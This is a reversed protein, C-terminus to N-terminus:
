LLDRMKQASVYLNAPIPLNKLLTAQLRLYGNAARQAHIELWQKVDDSRLYELLTPIIDSSRPVLYYVNHKPIIRGEFDAWFKPEKEIDRWLIKPKLIDRMPPNEHFAYWKKGGVKVAWRAELESRFENLYRLLPEAVKEDILNGEEDYPVLIIHRLRSYDIPKYPEFEALEDGSVTPWAFPKLREPVKDKRLVFVSDRGTAVGASVRVCIESLKHKYSDLSFSPRLKKKAESLWPSGDDPLHMHVRHGERFTFLTLGPKTKNIVMVAPYALIGEFADERVLEIEEVHYQALLKRLSHASQVYLFKEPTVFVLRGGSKLISLSKEFFLIYLDFRGVATKYLRRYKEKLVQPLKEISVYPPNGIVYDFDHKFYELLFDGQVIKVNSLERYKERCIEALNEDIEVGVIKPPDLNRRRCWALIGDIFAGLGCGPDLVLDDPQPPRTFLNGVMHDVLWSPTLVVGDRKTRLKGMNTWKIIEDVM